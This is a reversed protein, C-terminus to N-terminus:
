DDVTEYTLDNISPLVTTSRKTKSPLLSVLSDRIWQMAKDDEALELLHEHLRMEDPNNSSLTFKHQWLTRDLKKRSM